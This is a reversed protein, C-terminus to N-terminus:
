DDKVNFYRKIARAGEQNAHKSLEGPLILRVATQIERSKLSTIKQRAHRKKMVALEHAEHALREFIDIMMDNIIVMAKSSITFEDPYVQKLVKHIYRSFQRDNIKARKKEGSKSKSLDAKSATSMRAASKSKKQPSTTKSRSAATRAMETVFVLVITVKLTVIFTNFSNKKM